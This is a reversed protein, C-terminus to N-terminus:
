GHRAASAPARTSARFWDPGPCSIGPADPIRRMDAGIEAILVEAATEGLGPVEKLREVADSLAGARGRDACRFRRDDGGAARDDESAPRAPLPSPGRVHGDCHRSSGDGALLRPAPRRARRAPRSGDRRRDDGEPHAARERGHHRSIASALKINAEELVAQIRQTHQVIERTLQKRTRTLERLERIPQPPVFSARILGHALLDAIWTADNVDSKRGPVGKIHAANALMLDFRRGPHALGAEM